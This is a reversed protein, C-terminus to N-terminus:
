GDVNEKNDKDYFIVYIVMSIAGGVIAMDAINFVPFNFWKLSIFDVVFEYAVRDVANGVAGAFLLMLSIQAMPHAPRKWIWGIFVAASFVISILSLIFTNGSLISFAAGTNRVYIFDAVFPIEGFMTGPQYNKLIHLKMLRDLIIIAAAAAFWLISRLYYKKKNM